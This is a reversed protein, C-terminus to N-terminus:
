ILRYVGVVLAFVVAMILVARVISRAPTLDDYHEDWEERM